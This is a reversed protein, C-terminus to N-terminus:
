RAVPAPSRFEHTHPLSSVAFRSISQRLRDALEAMQQSSQSLGELATTQQAALHAAVEARAATDDSVTEVSQIATSLGAMTASQTRSVNATTAVVEAMRGIGDLMTGLAQTAEAAVQGVNRVDREGESMSQVASAITERVTAIMAAVDKAARGSEEALKRVEEAVVAFGKGHEGARAAEIAANLALLNTQRAIRSVAEVFDGVKESTDDLAGVTTASERVRHGISVLAGAARGIADRSLEASDVLARADHEMQESRQRLGESASLAQATQQSGTQTYDRQRQLQTSMDRATTAFETGTANLQEAASALQEAVAAVEDAERQVSAIIQGMQELMRNFGRQLFGLEDKYKDDARALLNGSEAETMCDRTARIRGILKASIPVLQFAVILILIAVVLTQTPNAPAAPHLVHYGWSALLFGTASAVASFYGLTRGRDFSYPVIALFYIVVTTAGGFALTLCSILAADLGAFLYRYYWRYTTSRTSLLLLGQNVVLASVFLSAMVWVPIDAMGMFVGLGLAGAIVFTSLLRRRAGLKFTIFDKEREEQIAAETDSRERARMPPPSAKVPGQPGRFPEFPSPEVPSSLVPSSM